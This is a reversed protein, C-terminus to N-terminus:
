AKSQILLHNFREKTMYFYTNELIKDFLDEREDDEALSFNTEVDEQDTEDVFIVQESKVDLTKRNYILELHNNKRHIAEINDIKYASQIFDIVRKERYRKHKQAKFDKAFSQKVLLYIIIIVALILLFILTSM